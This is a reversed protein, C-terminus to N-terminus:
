KASWHDFSALPISAKSGEEQIRRLQPVLDRSADSKVVYGSAGAALAAWQFGRSDHQSVMVIQISPFEQKIVRAAELGGMNPMTIDMLVLDPMHVRAKSIADAGDVAESIVELEPESNLLQRISRRVSENDDVVLVRLRSRTSM